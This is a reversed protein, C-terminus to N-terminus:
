LFRRLLLYLGVAGGVVFVFTGLVVVLWETVPMGLGVWGSAVLDAM